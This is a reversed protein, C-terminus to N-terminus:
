ALHDQASVQVQAMRAFLCASCRWGGGDIVDLGLRLAPSVVVGVQLGDTVGTVADLASCLPVPRLAICWTLGDPQIPPWNLPSCHANQEVFIDAAPDVAGNRARMDSSDLHDIERSLVRDADHCCHQISKFGLKGLSILGLFTASAAGCCGHAWQM